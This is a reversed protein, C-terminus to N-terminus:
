ENRDEKGLVCQGRAIVVAVGEHTLGAKIAARIDGGHDLDVEQLMGAGAERVLAAIKVAPRSRGRADVMSAPHPQGGSLATTGNDLIIVLMSVGLRVADMLGNFGSHLFGSDGSLAVVRKVFGRGSSSLALGAGMGIGSGLSNKVDMLYFPTGQARVMCGPDGTIIVEERGGFQTVVEELAEFTPIYPCGDCLQERSPRPRSHKGTVDLNLGPLIRVLAAAIQPAFLEGGWPIHGTERGFIPLMLGVEQAISRTAREVLPSTEELILVSEVGQLFTAVQGAPLPHLTGIGLISLEPPIHGSLLDLFKQYTFGAAIVGYPGYGQAKNLPSAEFTAQIAGIQEQLRQHYEVVNIPLVVWRMYERKFAFSEKKQIEMPPNLSQIKDESLALARIIRLIVPLGREESLKFAQIMGTYADSVTTPELLPLEAALALARSDQENQSGWGGPDDGVLIVLGANCGALNISMLPDLAINLGVSKVCLMSRMGGLSAGYAIELATKENSTWELRVSDPDCLEM